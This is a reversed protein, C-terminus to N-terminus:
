LHRLRWASSSSFVHLWVQDDKGKDKPIKVHQLFTCLVSSAVEEEERERKLRQGSSLLHNESCKLVTLLEQNEETSLTPKLM